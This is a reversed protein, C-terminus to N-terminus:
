QGETPYAALAEPATQMHYGINYGQREADLGPTTAMDMAMPGVNPMMRLYIGM